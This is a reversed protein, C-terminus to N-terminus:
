NFCKDTANCIFFATATAASVAFGAIALETKTFKKKPPQIEIQNIKQVTLEPENDSTLESNYKKEKLTFEEKSSLKTNVRFKIIDIIYKSEKSDFFETNYIANLRNNICTKKLKDIIITRASDIMDISNTKDHYLHINILMCEDQLDHTINIIDFLRDKKNYVECILSIEKPSLSKVIQSHKATSYNSLDDYKQLILSVAHDLDYTNDENRHFLDIESCAPGHKKINESFEKLGKVLSKNLLAQVFEREYLIHRICRFYEKLNVEKQNILVNYWKQTRKEIRKILGTKKLDTIAGVLGEIEKQKEEDTLDEIYGLIAALRWEKRIIEELMLRATDQLIDDLESEIEKNIYISTNKSVFGHLIRLVGERDLNNESKFSQIFDKIDNLMSESDFTFKVRISNQGEEPKGGFGKIESLNSNAQKSIKSNNNQSTTIYNVKKEDLHHDM